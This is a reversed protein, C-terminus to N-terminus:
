IMKLALIRWAKDLKAALRRKQKTSSKGRKAKIKLGPPGKVKSANPAVVSMPENGDATM